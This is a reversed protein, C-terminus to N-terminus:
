PRPLRRLATCLAQRGAALGVEALEGVAAVTTTLLERGGLRERAGDTRGGGPTAYGAPPIARQPGRAGSGDRTAMSGITIMPRAHVACAPFLGDLGVVSLQLEDGCSGYNRRSRQKVADSSAFVM